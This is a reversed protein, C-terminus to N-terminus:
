QMGAPTPGPAATKFADPHQKKLVRLKEAITAIPANESTAGLATQYSVAARAFQGASNEKDGQILSNLSLIDASLWSPLFRQGFSITGLAEFSRLALTWDQASIASKATRMLYDTVNDQPLPQPLNRKPLYNPLVEILLQQRVPTLQEAVDVYNGLHETCLRFATAYDRAALARRAGQLRAMLEATARIKASGPQAETLVALDNATADLDDLSKMKAFLTKLAEDADFKNPTTPSPTPSVARALVESRPVAPYWESHRALDEMRRAAETEKGAVRLTLYEQWIQAYGLAATLKARIRFLPLSESRGDNRWRGSLDRLEAVVKDLERPESARLCADGARQVAAEIERLEAEEAARAKVEMQEILQGGIRVVEDGQNAYRIRHVTEIAEKWHGTDIEQRLQPLLRLTAQSDGRGGFLSRSAKTVAVEFRSLIEPVQEAALQQGGCFWLLLVLIRLARLSFTVPFFSPM